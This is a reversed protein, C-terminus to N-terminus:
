GWLTVWKKSVVEGIKALEGNKNSFDSGEGKQCINSVEFVGGKLKKSYFTM